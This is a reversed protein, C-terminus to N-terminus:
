LSLAKWAALVEQRNVESSEHYEWEGQAIKATDVPDRYRRAVAKAIEMDIGKLPYGVPAAM